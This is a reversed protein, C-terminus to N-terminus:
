FIEGNTKVKDYEIINKEILLFIVALPILYLEKKFNLSLLSVM